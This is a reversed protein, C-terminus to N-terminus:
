VQAVGHSGLDLMGLARAGPCQAMGAIQGRVLAMHERSCVPNACTAGEMSERYVILRFPGHVTPIDAESYRKLEM